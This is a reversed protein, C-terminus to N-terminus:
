IIELAAALPRWYIDMQLKGTVQRVTSPRGTESACARDRGRTGGRGETMAQSTAM